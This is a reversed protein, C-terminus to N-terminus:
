KMKIKVKKVTKAYYKNGYFKVTALYKGKKNRKIKFTIKGKKNTKKINKKYKKKSKKSTKKKSTKKIKQVILRVKVNKIPKGKNDKLTITFKKVKKKAKYTKKKAMIKPKAKKVTVKVNKSTKTYNTNGNFTIAATYTKPTLGKTTVKIQGNKDTTYTKIGNLSVTIKEGTIPNGKSDTLTIVLDKNINYTATIGAATIKTTAKHLIAKATDNFAKTCNEIDMNTVNVIYGTENAAFGTFTIDQAVNAELTVMQTEDGVTVMYEGGVDTKVNVILNPYTSENAIVEIKPSAKHLIAKATDNVAKTCNEIDMNTVNVAYGTENAVFGTFTINQAVNAELTVIQTKDGVTVMYEGGVDTKVNVILNPYTSENAIVEIKPTAKNITLRINKSIPGLNPYTINLEATYNGAALDFILSDGSLCSYRMVEGVGDKYIVVDVNIFDIRGYQGNLIIQFMKNSKYTSTFDSAEFYLVLSDCDHYDGEQGICALYYSNFMAGGDRGATNGTFTCNVASGGAMAGGDRGATNGTFTCNVASGGAMAGGYWARNGIFTCNYAKGMYIAGGSDAKNNKFTCNVATGQALIGYGSVSEGNDEFYCNTVTSLTYIAAGGYSNSNYDKCNKFTCNEVTAYYVAGGGYGQCGIFECNQVKTAGTYTHIAGGNYQYSSTLKGLNVFTINKFLVAMSNTEFGKASNGCGDITHGNGDITVERNIEIGMLFASDTDANFSYDDDLVILSDANDNITRNLDYFTKPANNEPKRINLYFGIPSSPDYNGLSESQLTLYYSSGDYEPLEFNHLPIMVTGNEDTQYRKADFGTRTVKIYHGALPHGAEDTLNVTLYTENGKVVYLVSSSVNLTQSSLNIVTRYGMKIYTFSSSISSGYATASLSMSYKGLDLSNNWLSGSIMYETGILNYDSYNYIKLTVDIGNFNYVRRNQYYQYSYTINIPVAVNPLHVELPNSEFTFSPSYSSCKYTNAYSSSSATNGSFRCWITRSTSSNSYIAGGYNTAKNNEFVCDVIYAANNTVYVAGGQYASNSKFTCNVIEVYPNNSHFAGGYRASNRVFTCNHCSGYAMAGGGDSESTGEAVNGEFYCDHAEGYEMAGGKYRAHNNLFRCNHADTDFAAGGDEARCNSFNCDRATVGYVAGGETSYCNYFTCNVVDVPAYGYDIDFGSRVAQGYYYQDSGANNQDGCNIFKINKLLVTQSTYFVAAKSDGSITHGNGDITVSHRITIGDLFELDTGENYTYDNELVILSDDNGNITTNLQTFTQEDARLVENTGSSALEMDEEAGIVDDTTQDIELNDESAVLTDNVDTAFVSSVSFLALILLTLIFIGKKM